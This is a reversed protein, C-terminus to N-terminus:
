RKRFVYAATLLAAVPLSIWIWYHPGFVVTANLIMFAFVGHVTWFYSRPIRASEVGRTWWRLVDYIWFIAFAHNVYIGGGWEVGIVKATREATHQYAHAHDFHHIFAFAFSLHTLFLVCGITWLVRARSQSNHDPALSGSRLDIMVRLLYCVVMLRATWHVVVLAADETM